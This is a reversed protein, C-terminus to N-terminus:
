RIRSRRLVPRLQSREVPGASCQLRSRPPDVESLQQEFSATSYCATGHLHFASLVVGQPALRVWKKVSDELDLLLVRARAAPTQSRPISDASDGSM